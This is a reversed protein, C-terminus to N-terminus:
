MGTVTCFAKPRYVALALREEVRITVRNKVFDDQDTNTAEVMVGNRYFVQAGLRFAGVLMTNATMATTIVAPLGWVREPGAEVPSGWIYLGDATRLLRIDTWDDPHAVVGDPEFFGVSRVKTIGKYIADPGPDAGKAQTQIGSTQLIGRINPSSGNGNLLQAEEREVIMFRLRNDIYDRMAPFDAFLEDTVKATVAIKRVPADVESTDFTAEPKLGEEAVMAAANTYTDEQVYRITNQDTQGRALMDAITLRELGVMVMGPQRDYSTLTSASTTFTAKFGLGDVEVSASKGAQRNGWNKYSDSEVLRTGLSKASTTSQQASQGAKAEDDGAKGPFRMGSVPENMRRAEDSVRGAIDEVAELRKVEDHLASLEANRRQIEEVKDKTDGTLSTIKSFDREAGAEDFISKLQNLKATYRERAEAFTSM